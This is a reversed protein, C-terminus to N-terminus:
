TCGLPDDVTGHTWGDVDLQKIQTKLGQNTEFM